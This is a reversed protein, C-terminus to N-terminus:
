SSRRRAYVWAPMHPRSRLRSRLRHVLRCDSGLWAPKVEVAGAVVRLRATPLIVVLPMVSLLYWNWTRAHALASLLRHLAKLERLVANVSIGTSSMMTPGSRLPAPLM